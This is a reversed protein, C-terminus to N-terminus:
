AARVTVEFNEIYDAYRDHIEGQALGYLHADYKHAGRQDARKNSLWGAVADDMGAGYPLDFHSCIDRVAAAPDRVLRRFDMDYFHSEAHRSRSDMAREIGMHFRETIHDGIVTPDFDGYLTRWQMSILSCYSAITDLPDRHTWVICADPFLELLDDIFWLHEPCKLVLQEAPRRWLLAQLYQRYERYPGTMDYEDILWQGYDRMGSQLDWNLVAFSNGFLPWCEELTTSDIYHVEAMEPAVLYALKLVQDAARLRKRRDIDANESAPIPRQLEWFELGRRDPHLSLLNQLVTTGTRPFGLVFVPREIKVDLVDPHRKVFDQYRLRNALAVHFVQSSVVRGLSTVPATQLNDFLRQAPVRFDEPGLDHLGTRRRAVKIIQDMDWTGIKSGLGQAVGALANLAKVAPRYTRKEVTRITSL